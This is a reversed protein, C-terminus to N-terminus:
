VGFHRGILRLAWRDPLLRRGLAVSLAENGVAYRARPRRSTLAREIAKAVITAEPAAVLSTEM